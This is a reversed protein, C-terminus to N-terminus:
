WGDRTSPQGTSHMSAAMGQLVPEYAVADKQPTVFLMFVFDGGGEEKLVSSVQEDIGTAPDKGRLRTLNGGSLASKEVPQLYPSTKRVQVILDDAAEQLTIAGQEMKQKQTEESMPRYRNVIAGYVVETAGDVDGAGGKPAFTVGSQGDDYSQWNSPYDISYLGGRSSYSRMTASPPEVRVVPISGGRGGGDGGRTEAIASMPKASPMGHLSAKVAVFATNDITQPKSGQLLKAEQELRQIRREPAPHDSLWNVVRRHDVTELTQFFHIMDVPDYGSRALIQVGEVDAESEATRSNKLFLANLGFGGLVNIIAGTGRGVHGGLVGGLIGIGAQTLYAKSVQHTGHRLAVHSIEHALVGAVEGETKATELVGRNLFIVGGPLAFANLDSADAVHFEYPFKYGPANAALRKGLNSVYETVAPDRVLPLKEEVQEASRKGIEIDQQPSMLNFGPQINTGHGTSSGSGNDVPTEARCAALLVVAIITFTRKMKMILEPAPLASPIGGGRLPTVSPRSASAIDNHGDLNDPLLRIRERVQKSRVADTAEPTGEQSISDQSEDKEEKGEPRICRRLIRDERHLSGSEGVSHFDPDLGAVRRTGDVDAQDNADSKSVLFREVASQRMEELM